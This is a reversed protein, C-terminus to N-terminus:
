CYEYRSLSVLCSLVLDFLCLAVYCMYGFFFTTVLLKDAEESVRKVAVAGFFFAKSGFLLSLLVCFERKPFSSDFLTHIYLHISIFLDSISWFFGFVVAAAAEKERFKNELFRCVFSLFVFICWQHNQNGGLRLQNSYILYSYM